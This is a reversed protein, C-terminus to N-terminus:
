EDHGERVRKWAEPNRPGRVRIEIGDDEGPRRVKGDGENIVEEHITVEVPQETQEIQAQRNSVASLVRPGSTADPDPKSFDRVKGVGM